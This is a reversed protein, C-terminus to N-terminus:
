SVQLTKIMTICNGTENWSVEDMLSTIILIGRGTPLMETPSLNRMKNLDFGSGQDEIEFKLHEPTIQCRINIPKNVFEPISERKQILQEFAEPSQNKITSPIKLNGHIVANVLAEHLCLGINRM